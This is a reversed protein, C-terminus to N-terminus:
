PLNEVSSFDLDRAVFVSVSSGQKVRLTPRVPPATVIGSVSQSSGPLALIVTEDTARRTALGVGIDFVSQLIASGFREFFHTDVSGKVGARGLPDAAPSEIAIVAGDPRLLRKWQIFARNQGPALDALYEGTLRSGRPILVRSGDFSRVDRSVIARAQGSRNSDLATELVGPIITGQPVTAAPNQLRGARARASDARYRGAEAEASPEASRRSGASGSEYVLSPGSPVPPLPPAVYPSRPPPPVYTAPPSERVVVREAAPAPALAPPARLPRLAQPPTRPYDAFDPPVYLPAPGASSADLERIDPRTTPASLARRRSDLANFLLLGALALVAAFIWPGANGERVAVIPRVDAGPEDSPQAATVETM